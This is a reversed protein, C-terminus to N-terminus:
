SSTSILHCTKKINVAMVLILMDMSFRGLRGSAMDLHDILLHLYVKEEDTFHLKNAILSGFAQYFPTRNSM